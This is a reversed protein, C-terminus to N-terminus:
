SHEVPYLFKLDRLLGGAYCGVVGILGLYVLLVVAIGFFTFGQRFSAFIILIFAIVTLKIGMQVALKRSGAVYGGILGSSFIVLAAIGGVLIIYNIVQSYKLGEAEVIRFDPGFLIMLVIPTAISVCAVFFGLRAQKLTRPYTKGELLKHLDDSFSDFLSSENMHARTLEDRFKEHFQTFITKLHAKILRDHDYFNVVAYMRIGTGLKAQDELAEDRAPNYVVIKKKKTIEVKQLVSEHFTEQSFQTIASLFGSVLNEDLQLRAVAHYAFICIGTDTVIFLNEIM